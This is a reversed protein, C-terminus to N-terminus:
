DEMMEEPMGLEKLLQKGWEEDEVVKKGNECATAIDNLTTMLGEFQEYDKQKEVMQGMIELGKTPDDEMAKQLNLVEEMIPKMNSMACRMASKWEDVSWSAGEAKAKEVLDSLNLSEIEKAKDAVEEAAAQEGNTATAKNDKCSVMGMTLVLAMMAAFVKKM